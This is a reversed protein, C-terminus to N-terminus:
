TLRGARIRSADNAFTGTLTSQVGGAITTVSWTDNAANRQTGSGSWQAGVDGSQYNAPIAGQALTYTFTFGNGVAQCSENIANTPYSNFQQCNSLGSTPAVNITITMATIAATNAITLVEQGGYFNYNSSSPTVTVGNSVSAAITINSSTGTTAAYQGKAPATPTITCTGVSLMTVTSGSVSCVSSTSSAFTVTSGSTDSASGLSFTGAGGSVFTQTGPATWTIVQNAKSFTITTQVSSAALYNTDAAKTATVFCTGSSTASLVIGVISCGTASGGANVVYSDAGTGSGGATALSLTYASGTYTASTTSITLTSQAAKVVTISPSAALTVLGAVGSSQEQGGWTAIGPSAGVTSGDGPACNAGSTAGYTITMTSAAALTVSSVTITQGSTIVTGTSSTTCGVANASTPASWGAPVAVTVVGNNMGGAAATFTLTVSQGTALYTVSSTTTTLTGTGNAADVTISPSNSLTTMTGTASSREKVLWTQAGTSSTATAGPVLSLSSGYTITMTQAASLTLGSVTIVQGSVSVTGSSSTVYGAALGSLSPATWGSPVAISVAGNVIGTSPAIYTFTVSQGTSSAAVASPAASMTGAGDALVNLTTSVSLGWYNATVTHAGAVTASCSSGACSGDPSITLTASSTVDGLSNNAVDQATM